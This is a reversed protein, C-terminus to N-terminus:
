VPNLDKQKLIKIFLYLSYVQFFLEEAYLPIKQTNKQM